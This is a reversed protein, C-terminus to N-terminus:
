LASMLLYHALAAGFHWFSHLYYLPSTEDEPCQNANYLHREYNWAAKAACITCLAIFMIWKNYATKTVIIYIPILLQV